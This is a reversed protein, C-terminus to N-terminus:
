KIILYEKPRSFYNGVEKLVDFANRAPSNKMGINTIEGYHPEINMFSINDTGVGSLYSGGDAIRFNFVYTFGKITKPQTTVFNNVSDIKGFFYNHQLLVDITEQLDAGKIFIVNAHKPITDEQATSYVAILLAFSLLAYKM